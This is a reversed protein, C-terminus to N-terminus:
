QENDRRRQLRQHLAQPSLGISRAAVSITDGSRRLAETILADIWTRLEPLTSPFQITEDSRAPTLNARTGRYSALVKEIIEPTITSVGVSRTFHVCRHAISRLERINGPYQYKLLPTLASEELELTVGFRNAARSAFQTFLPIIDLPRNRLPLLQVEYTSIRYYFDSRFSRKRILDNLDQNTALIIRAHCVEPTDSGLPYYEKNEVLRLLKIQGAADLDGIEDLFLTGEAAESVLGSRQDGAGTFAGKRHGFLTDSLLQDDLGGVNLAVFEGPLGSIRHIERAVVDKGTGTEGCILIPEPLAAVSACFRYIARVAEERSDLQWSAPANSNYNCVGDNNVLHTDDFM